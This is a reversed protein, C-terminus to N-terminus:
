PCASKYVGGRKYAHQHGTWSRALRLAYKVRERSRCMSMTLFHTWVVTNTFVFNSEM